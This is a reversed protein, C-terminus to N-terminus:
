RGSRAAPQCLERHGRRGGLPRVAQERRRVSAGRHVQVARELRCGLLSCYHSQPYNLLLPLRRQAAALLVRQQLPCAWAVSSRFSRPLCLLLCPRNAMDTLDPSSANASLVLVEWQRLVVEEMLEWVEQLHEM